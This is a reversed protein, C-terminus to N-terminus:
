GQVDFSFIAADEEGSSRTVTVTMQWQGPMFLDFPGVTFTGLEGTPVGPFELPTTGHGHLPMYPAVILSAGEVAAGSPDLAQVTWVNDGKEPPAPLADQLRVIFLGQAGEEEMGATFGPAEVVDSGGATAPEAGSPDDACAAVLLLALLCTRAADGALALPDRM